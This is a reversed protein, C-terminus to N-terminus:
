GIASNGTPTSRGKLLSLNALNDNGVLVKAITSVAGYGAMVSKPVRRRITWDRVNKGNPEVILRTGRYHKWYLTTTLARLLKGCGPTKCIMCNGAYNVLHCVRKLGGITLTNQNV